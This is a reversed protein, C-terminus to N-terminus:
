AVAESPAASVSVSKRLSPPLFRDADGSAAIILDRVFPARAFLSRLGEAEYLQALSWGCVIAIAYAAIAAAQQELLAGAREPDVDTRFAGASDLLTAEVLAQTALLVGRPRVVSPDDPWKLTLSVVAGSGDVLSVGGVPDTLPLTSTERTGADFSLAIM